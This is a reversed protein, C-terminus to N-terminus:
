RYPCLYTIDKFVAEIREGGLLPVEDSSGSRVKGTGASNSRNKVMVAGDNPDHSESSTRPFLFNKLLSSRQERMETLPELDVSDVVAASLLLIQSQTRKM